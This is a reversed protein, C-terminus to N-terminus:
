RRCSRTFGDLRDQHIQGAGTLADIASACPVTVIVSSSGTGDIAIARRTAHGFAVAPVIVAAKVSVSEAALPWVTLTAYAVALPM